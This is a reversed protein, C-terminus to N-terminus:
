ARRLGRVFSILFAALERVWMPLEHRWGRSPPHDTAVVALGARRFQLRARPLHYRDSVLVVSSLGRARMLRATEVANEYTNRSTPELLIAREPVGNAIAIEGMADAETRAHRGGGSLLLLPADGRRYLTAGREVRHLLARSPVGEHLTCGLVVVADARATRPQTDTDQPPQPTPM